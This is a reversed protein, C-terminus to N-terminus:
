RLFFTLGFSLISIFLCYYGFLFFKGKHIVSMLWKIVVYGSLAASVFGLFVEAGHSSFYTLGEKLDMAIAALIAPISILFSFKAADEKQIGFFMGALITSGSRSIGPMLSLGQMFGIGLARLWGIEKLNKTGSRLKSSAILFLGMVFWALAVFRLNSFSAEVFDKFFIAMLGTPILTLVIWFWLFSGGGAVCVCPCFCKGITKWFDALISLIEKHFYVLVAALTGAHLAIDFALMPEKMGFLTQFFVLHGSSSIPLFETLGQVIGLIVAKVLIM